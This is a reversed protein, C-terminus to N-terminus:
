PNIEFKYKVNGEQGAADIIYVYFKEKIELPIPVVKYNTWLRNAEPVEPVKSKLEERYLEVEKADKIIVTFMKTNATALTIRSVFFHLLGGKLEQNYMKITNLKKEESWMESEAKKNAKEIMQPLSQYALNTIHYRDNFGELRKIANGFLVKETDVKWVMSELNTDYQSYASSGVAFMMVLTAVLQKVNIKKM